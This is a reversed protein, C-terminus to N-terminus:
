QDAESPGDYDGPYPYEPDSPEVPDVHVITGGGITDENEDGILLDEGTGAAGGTMTDAGPGGHVLDTGGLGDLVDGGYGGFLIDDGAGGRVDDDGTEGYLSDPGGGGRITDAGDGGFILDGAGDGFLQDDDAGGYLADTGEGGRIEDIGAGGLLVDDGAGGGIIDAGAGGCIIDNGGNGQIEDDGGLGFIIDPGATGVLVDAGETGVITPTLQDCLGANYWTISVTASSRQCGDPSCVEYLFQPSGSAGPYFRVFPGNGVDLVRAFHDPHQGVVRLTTEDINDADNRLVFIDVFSASQPTHVWSAYDPNAIVLPPLTEVPTSTVTTTTPEPVTTETPAVTTTPAASDSPGVSGTTPPSDLGPAGIWPGTGDDVPVPNQSGPLSADNPVSAPTGGAPSVGGEDSGGPLLPVAEIGAVAAGSNGQSDGRRDNNSGLDSIPDLSQVSVGAEQILRVALVGLLIMAAIAAAAALAALARRQLGKVATLSKGTRKATEELTLDERFRLEVVRRQDETLNALLGSVWMEDVIEGDFNSNRVDAVDVCDIPQDPRGSRKEDLLRSRAVSYLYSWARESSAFELRPLNRTFEAMVQNALADPQISGRRALYSSIQPLCRSVLERTAEDDGTSAAHIVRLFGAQRIESRLVSGM